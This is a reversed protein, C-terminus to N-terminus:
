MPLDLYVVLLKFKFRSFIVYFIVNHESHKELRDMIREFKIPTIELERAMQQEMWKEDEADMDYDPEPEINLDDLINITQCSV